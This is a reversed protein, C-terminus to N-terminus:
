SKAEVAYGMAVAESVPRVQYASRIDAAAEAARTKVHEEQGPAPNEYATMCVAVDREIAARAAEETPFATCRPPHPASGPWAASAAAWRNEDPDPGLMEEKPGVDLLMMPLPEDMGSGPEAEPNIWYVAYGDTVAAAPDGARALDPVM